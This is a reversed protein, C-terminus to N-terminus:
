TNALTSLRALFSVTILENKNMDAAWLMAEYPFSRKIANFLNTLKVKDDIIYSVDKVCKRLTQWRILFAKNRIFDFLYKLDDNDEDKLARAWANLNNEGKLPILTAANFSM